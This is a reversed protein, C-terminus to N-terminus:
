GDGDGLEVSSVILRHLGLARPESRQERSVFLVARRGKVGFRPLEQLRDSVGPTQDGIPVALEMRVWFLKM